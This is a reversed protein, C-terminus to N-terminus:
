PNKPAPAPSSNGIDVIVKWSRDRQKQWITAYKGYSVAPKGDARARLVKSVGYTYGLDGSVGGDVPEWRM